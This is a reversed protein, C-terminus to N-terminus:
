LLSQHSKIKVSVERAEAMQSIAQELDIQDPNSEPQALLLNILEAQEIVRSSGDTLQQYAAWPLFKTLPFMQNEEPSIDINLGSIFILNKGRYAPSQVLSRYVRDFEAMVNCQAASLLPDSSCLISPMAHMLNQELQLSELNQDDLQRRFYFLDPTLLKGIAIKGKEPWCEDGLQKELHAAAPYVRSTSLSRVLDQRKVLHELRLLLGQKQDEHLLEHDVVICKRGNERTLYTNQCAFEYHEQYWNLVQGLMGCTTSQNSDSTQRRCYTGFKQKEPDYGVHSAHIIVLDKGHKAHPSHRDTSVIGGVRGHNFPFVGFHKAILIVPFGQNEDSCFARSPMIQGPTFGQSICYNYLRPMFQSYRMLHTTDFDQLVAAIDEYSTFM